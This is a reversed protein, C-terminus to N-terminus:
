GPLKVMKEEEGAKLRRKPEPNKLGYYGLTGLAPISAFLILIEPIWAGATTIDDLALFDLLLIVLFGSIAGLQRIRGPPSSPYEPDGNQLDKASDVPELSSM